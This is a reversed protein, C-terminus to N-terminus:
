WGEEGSRRGRYNCEVLLPIVGPDPDSYFDMFVWGRIRPDDLGSKEGDAALDGTGETLLNLLWKALRKNVGEIGLGIDPWGFGTAVTPPLALPFSAASFFTISLM